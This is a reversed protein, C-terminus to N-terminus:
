RQHMFHGMEPLMMAALRRTGRVVVLFPCRLHPFDAQDGGIGALGAALVGARAAPRRGAAAARQKLRRPRAARATVVEVLEAELRDEFGGPPPRMESVNM